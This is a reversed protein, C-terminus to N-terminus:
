KKLRKKPQTACGTVWTHNLVGSIDIRRKPSIELMETFLQQVDHSLSRINESSFFNRIVEPTVTQGVPFPAQGLLMVYLLCGLSWLDVEKGYGETATVEPAWYLCTGVVSNMVSGQELYRSLGFDAIKVTDVDACRSILINEPKLDRHIIGMGHLFAVGKAIQEFWERAISPAIPGSNKIHRHLDGGEMYEMIIFCNSETKFCEFVRVISPHVIDKFIDYEYGVDKQEAERIMKIAVKDNFNDNRFARKVVGFKGRGLVVDELTYQLQIARPIDQQCQAVKSKNLFLFYKLKPSGVSIISNHQLPITGHVRVGNSYTGNM